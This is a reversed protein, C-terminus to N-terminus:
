ILNKVEDVFVQLGNTQNWLSLLLGMSILKSDDNRLSEMIINKLKKGYKEYPFREDKLGLFKGNEEPHDPIKLDLFKLISKLDEISRPGTVGRYVVSSDPIIRNIIFNLFEEIKSLNKNSIFNKSKIEELIRNFIDSYVPIESGDSLVIKKSFLALKICLITLERIEDEPLQTSYQERSKKLLEFGNNIASNVSCGGIKCSTYNISDSCGGIKCSVEDESDSDTDSAWGKEKKFVEKLVEPTVKTIVKTTVETTSEEEKQLVKIAEAIESDLKSSDNMLVLLESISYCELLMGTIKGAKESIESQKEIISFITEGINEKEQKELEEDSISQYLYIRYLIYNNDEGTVLINTDQLEVSTGDPLTHKICAVLNGYVTKVVIYEEPNELPVEIRTFPSKKNDSISDQILNSQTQTLPSIESKVKEDKKSSSLTSNKSNELPEGGLLQEQNSLTSMKNLFLYLKETSISHSKILIMRILFLIILFLSDIKKIFNNFNFIHNCIM